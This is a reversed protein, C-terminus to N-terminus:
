GDHCRRLPRAQVPHRDSRPGHFLKRSTATDQGSMRIKAESCSVCRMGSRRGAVRQFSLHPRPRLSPTAEASVCVTGAGSPAPEECRPCPFEDIENPPLEGRHRRQRRRLLPLGHEDPSITGAGECHPCPVEDILDPGNRAAEAQTVVRDGGCYACLRGMLGSAAIGNARLCSASLPPRRETPSVAAKGSSRGRRVSALPRQEARFAAVLDAGGAHGRQRSAALIEPRDCSAVAVATPCFCGRPARRRCWGLAARDPSEIWSRRRRALGVHM